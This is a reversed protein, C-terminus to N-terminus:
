IGFRSKFDEESQLYVESAYGNESINVYAIMSENAQTFARCVTRVLQHDKDIYHYGMQVYNKM